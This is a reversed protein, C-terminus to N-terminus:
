HSPKTLVSLQQKLENGGRLQQKLQATAEASSNSLSLQQKLQATALSM